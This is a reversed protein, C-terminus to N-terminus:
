DYEGSSISNKKFFDKLKEFSLESDAKVTLIDKVKGEEFIIISPYGLLKTDYFKNFEKIFSSKKKLSKLNLYTIKRELGKDKLYPGFEKEFDRCTKNDSTCVYIILEGNERVYNYIENSNIESIIYNRILPTSEEYLRDKLYVNRFIFVGVLTVAIIIFLQIYNAIPIRSTKNKM